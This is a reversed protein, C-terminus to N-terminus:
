HMKGPIMSGFAVLGAFVIGTGLLLAGSWRADTACVGAARSRGSVTATTLFFWPLFWLQPRMWEIWHEPTGALAPSALMFLAYLAAISWYAWRPYRQLPALVAAMLLTGAAGIMAALMVHSPNSSHRPAAVTIGLVMALLVGTGWWVRHSKPSPQVESTFM